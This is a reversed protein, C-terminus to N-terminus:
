SSQRTWPRRCRGASAAGPSCRHRRTGQPWRPRAAWRSTRACPSRTLPEAKQFTRGLGLRSRGSVGIRTVDKGRLFVRGSTPKILGSCANFTTTKGAGNPGILGTIKGLPATLDLGQVAHVGSDSRCGKWACAM